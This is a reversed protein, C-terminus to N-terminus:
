RRGLAESSTVCLESGHLHSENMGKHTCEVSTYHPGRAIGPGSCAQASIVLFWVYRWRQEGSHESVLQTCPHQSLPLGKPAYIPGARM